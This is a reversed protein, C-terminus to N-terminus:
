RDQHLSRRPCRADPEGLLEALARDVDDADGVLRGVVAQRVPRVRQAAGPRAPRAPRIGAPTHAAHARWRRPLAPRRATPLRLGSRCDTAAPVAVVSLTRHHGSAEPWPGEAPAEDAASRGEFSQGSAARAGDAEAHRKARARRPVGARRPRRRFFYLDAIGWAIFALVLAAILIVLVRRGSRGQRAKEANIKEVM